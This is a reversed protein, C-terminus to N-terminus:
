VQLRCTSPTSVALKLGHCASPPGQKAPMPLHALASRSKAREAASPNRTRPFTIEERQTEAGDGALPARPPYGTERPTALSFENADTLLAATDAPFARLLALHDNTVQLCGGVSAPIQTSPELNWALLTM